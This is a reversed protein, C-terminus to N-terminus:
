SIMPKLWNIFLEPWVACEKEINSGDAQSSEENALALAHKGRNFLHYECDIGKEYLADALLLTNKAPVAEDHLTHWIFTPPFDRTVNKELSVVSLMNKQGLSKCIKEAAIPSISGIVNMISGEHWYKENSTIVPYCLCLYNPRIEDSSHNVYDKLFSSNWFAGLSAALHGGASFGCVIIKSSDVSWKEANQRILAVANALDCLADPFKMPALSYKLIAAHFGLANMRIAVPEGERQGFHEYGGGPIVIVLPRKRELNFAKKEIIYTQLFVSSKDRNPLEISEYIM